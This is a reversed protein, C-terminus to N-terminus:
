MWTDRFYIQLSTQGASIATGTIQITNDVNPVIDIWNSTADYASFRNVGAQDLITKTGRTEITWTQGLAVTGNFTMSKGTRTNTLVPNTIPGVIIFRPQAAFNGRQSVVASSPSASVAIQVLTENFSLMRPDSARLAIQFDRRHTFDAQTEPVVLPQHKKCYIAVDRATNGTRIYLPYETTLDSFAARLAMVMDRMKQLNYGRLKGSLTITRGGYFAAFATEGHDGPNVDRSDRIDADSLGDINNVLYTDYNQRVNLLLGNYEFVSEVGGPVAIGSGALPATTGSGASAPQSPLVLVEM